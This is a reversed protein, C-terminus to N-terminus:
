RQGAAAIELKSMSAPEGMAILYDGARIEDGAQPNFRTNGDSHKIALVIVGYDRHIGSAGVTSGALPSRSDVSIEEIIMEHGGDRGTTLSLFDVVNPRLLGQAILHGAFAYPSIVTNAGAKTLHKAAEEESARAIIKLKSNLGRANLVIFINGADTTTAAVLGAAAEIRAAILTNEQTADGSITLWKPDLGTTKAEDREIIVFPVPKKALERAASRGVRGAGCIIYHGSLRAIQREMKRRGFFQPLEFELLAQTLTGIGLAVVVAGCVILAITFERGPRSLPHVEEYGISSFTIVVMFLSDLWNWGEIAHYGVTGVASLVALAVGIWLVKRFSKLPNRATAFPM